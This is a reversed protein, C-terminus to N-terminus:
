PRGGKPSFEGGDGDHDRRGLVPLIGERLFRRTFEAAGHELLHHSDTFYAEDPLWDRAQIVPHKQDQEIRRMLEASERRSQDSYWSQFIPGEPMFVVLTSLRQRRCQDLLDFLAACGPNDAQFHFIGPAFSEQAKAILQARHYRRGEENRANMYAPTWYEPGYDVRLHLPLLVPCLQNVLAFRQSSAPCLWNAWYDLSVDPRDAPAFTQVLELEDGRLTRTPVRSAEFELKPDDHLLAPLAEVM